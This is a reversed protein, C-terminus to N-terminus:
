RHAKSRSRTDVSRSVANASDRSKKTGGMSRAAPLHRQEMEWAPIGALTMSVVLPELLGLHNFVAQVFLLFNLPTEAVAHPILQNPRVGLRTMDLSAEIHGNRFVEVRNVEDATQLGYLTPVVQLGRLLGYGVPRVM